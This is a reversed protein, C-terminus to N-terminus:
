AGLDGLRVREEMKNILIIHKDGDKATFIRGKEVKKTYDGGYYETFIVSLFKENNVFKPLTYSV